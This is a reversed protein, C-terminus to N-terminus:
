HTTRKNTTVHLFADIQQQITLEKDNYSLTEGTQLVASGKHKVLCRVPDMEGFFLDELSLRYTLIRCITDDHREDEVIPYMGNMWEPIVRKDSYEVVVTVEYYANNGKTVVYSHEAWFFDDTNVHSAIRDEVYGPIMAELEPYVDYNEQFLLDLFRSVHDADVKTIEDM